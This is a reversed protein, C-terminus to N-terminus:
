RGSNIERILEERLKQLEKLREEAEYRNKTNKKLNDLLVQKKSLRIETDNIKSILSELEIILQEYLMAMRSQYKILHTLVILAILVVFLYPFALVYEIEDAKTGTDKIGEWLQYSYIIIPSLIAYRWWNQATIFWIILPILVCIKSLVYWVFINVDNFGHALIKVGLVNYETLGEPIYEFLYFVYPILILIVAYLIDQSRYTIRLDNPFNQYESLKFKLREALFYLRSPKEGKENLYVSETSSLHERIKNFLIKDRLLRNFSNNFEYERLKKFLFADGLFILLCCTLISIIFIELNSYNLNAYVFVHRTLSYIFLVLPFLIFYRWWFPSTYFWIAMLSLPILKSWLYWVFTRVDEYVVAYNNGLMSVVSSHEDVLLHSYILLPLCFIIVSILTDWKYKRKWTKYLGPM